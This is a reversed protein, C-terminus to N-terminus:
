GPKDAISVTVSGSVEAPYGIGDLAEELSEPELRGANPGMSVLDSVESRSLRMQWAVPFSEMGEALQGLTDRLRREKDSDVSIMSLPGALESLHEPQPTVTILRGGPALIREIESGNRPAFVNIAVAATEPGLPLGDWVDAVVAAARPHCRAARRAAYKSNDVAIGIREPVAELVRELYYGPGSGIDAVVGAVETAAPVAAAEALAASVPEFLGAGLVRERASIM